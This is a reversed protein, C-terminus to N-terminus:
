NTDNPEVKAGCGPCYNWLAGKAGSYGFHGCRGCEIIPVSTPVITPLKDYVKIRCTWEPEPEILDALRSVGASEVLIEGTWKLGLADALMEVNVQESQWRGLSVLSRLEKAVERREENTPKM